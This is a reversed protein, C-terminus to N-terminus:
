GGGVGGAAGGARTAHLPSGKSPQLRCYWLEGPAVGLTYMLLPRIPKLSVGGVLKWSVDVTPRCDALQTPFAPGSLAETDVLRPSLSVNKVVETVSVLVPATSAAVPQLALQAQPAM